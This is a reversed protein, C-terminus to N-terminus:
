LMQLIKKLLCSKKYNYCRKLRTSTSRTSSEGEPESLSNSQLMEYSSSNSGYNLNQQCAVIEFDLFNRLMGCHFSSKPKFAVRINMRGKGVKKVSLDDILFRDLIMVLMTLRHYRSQQM